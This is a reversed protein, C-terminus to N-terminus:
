AALPTYGSRKSISRTIPGCAVSRSAGIATGTPTSRVLPKTPTSDRPLRSILAPVTALAVGTSTRASGAAIRPIVLWGTSSPKLYRPPSTSMGSVAACCSSTSTSTVSSSSVRARVIHVGSPRRRVETFYRIRLLRRWNRRRASGLPASSHLAETPPRATCGALALSARTITGSTRECAAPPSSAANSTSITYTSAPAAGFLRPRPSNLASSGRGSAGLM